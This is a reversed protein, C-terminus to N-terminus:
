REGDRVGTGAPRVLHRANPRYMGRSIARRITGAVSRVKDRLPIRLWNSFLSFGSLGPAPIGLTRLSLTRGWIAGRKRQLEKQSLDLTKPEVVKLKV